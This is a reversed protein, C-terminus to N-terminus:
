SEIANPDEDDELKVEFGAMLKKLDSAAGFLKDLSKPKKFSPAIKKFGGGRPQRPFNSIKSQDKIPAHNHNGSVKAKGPYDALTYANVPCKNINFKACNWICVSNGFDQENIFLYDDVILRPSGHNLSKFIRAGKLESENVNIVHTEEYEPESQVHEELITEVPEPSTDMPEVIPEPKSELRKRPIIGSKLPKEMVEEVKPTLTVRPAESTDDIIM